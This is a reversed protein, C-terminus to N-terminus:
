FILIVKVLFGAAAVTDSVKEDQADVHGIFM